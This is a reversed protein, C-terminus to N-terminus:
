HKFDGLEFLIPYDSLRDSNPTSFNLSPKKKRESYEDNVSKPISIALNASRPIVRSKPIAGYQRYDKTEM